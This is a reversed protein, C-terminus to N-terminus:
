SNGDTKKVTATKKPAAIKTSAPKKRLSEIERAAAELRAACAQYHNNAQKL